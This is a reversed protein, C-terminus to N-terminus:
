QIGGKDWKGNRSESIFSIIYAVIAHTGENKM